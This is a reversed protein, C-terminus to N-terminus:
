RVPCSGSDCSSETLDFEYYSREIDNVVEILSSLDPFEAAMEEYREKPIAEFPPFPYPKDEGSSIMKPLWAIAIVKDWNQYVADIIEPHEEPALTLTCSTNHDTYRDMFMLYRKFQDKASEDDASEKSGSSIPFEFIMREKKDPDLFGKMGLKTLAKAVPDTPAYRVRRIFYPAYSRHIGSSVTPLLSITGEPKVATVLLPRPIRMDYALKDATANAAKKMAGLVLQMFDSDYSLGMRDCADMFGTMSVGTLRDRKQVKEWEPLEVDINTVCVGIFTALKVSQILDAVQMGGGDSLHSSIVVTSLNCFGKSDLLIEACPNLGKVGKRRKQAAELNFFGPEGNYKIRDFIEKLKDKSPKSKLVISNNSMQRQPQSNSKSKATIFPEDDSDGLHIQASRRNGGSIVNKAIFNNIDLVQVSTLQEGNLPNLLMYLNEFMEFMGMPGPAFGGFTVIRDGKPRINDYNISISGITPETYAHLFHRLADVWGEKSDGVMIHMNGDSVTVFTEDFREEKNKKTNPEINEFRKGGYVLPLKDTYVKEIGYGVGCSCLSLYFGECIDEMSEITTFSCNFVSVASKKVAETGGVWLTRGAPLLKLHFIRTYLDQAIQQVNDPGTYLSMIWEVSRQVTEQWTERRQWEEIWRCYTRLYIVEFMPGKFKPSIGEFGALFEASLFSTSTVPYM